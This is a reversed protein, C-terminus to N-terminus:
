RKVTRTRSEMKYEVKRGNADTEFVKQSSWHGPIYRVGGEVRAYDPTLWRVGSAPPKEWRGAVWEWGTPRWDWYGAVWVYDTSPRSTEVVVEPKPPPPEKVTVTVNVEPLAPPPPPPPVQARSAAAGYILVLGFCSAAFHRKWSM